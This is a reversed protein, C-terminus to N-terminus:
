HAFDGEFSCSGFAEGMRPATGRGFVDLRMDASESELPRVLCATAESHGFTSGMWTLALVISSAPRGAWALREPTTQQFVIKSKGIKLKKLRGDTLVALGRPM